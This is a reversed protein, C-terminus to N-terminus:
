SIITTPIEEITNTKSKELGLLLTLETMNM